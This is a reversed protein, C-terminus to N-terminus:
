KAKKKGGKQKKMHDPLVNAVPGQMQLPNGSGESGVTTAKVSSIGVAMRVSRKIDLVYMSSVGSGIQKLVQDLEDYTM